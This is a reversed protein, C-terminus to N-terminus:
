EAGAIQVAVFRKAKGIPDTLRLDIPLLAEVPRRNLRFVRVNDRETLEEETANEVVADDVPENVPESTPESM